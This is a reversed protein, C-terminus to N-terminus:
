AGKITCRLWGFAKRFGICAIALVFAISLLLKTDNLATLFTSSSYNGVTAYSQSNVIIESKPMGKSILQNNSNYIDHTSFIVSVDDLQYPANIGTVGTGIKVWSESNNSYDWAYYTSVSGVPTVELIYRKNVYLEKVLVVSECKDSKVFDPFEPYNTTLIGM